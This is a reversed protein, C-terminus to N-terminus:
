PIAFNEPIIWWLPPLLSPVMRAVRYVIYASGVGASGVAIKKAAVKQANADWDWGEKEKLAEKAKRPPEEPPNEKTRRNGNIDQHFKQGDGKLHVHKNKRTADNAPERRYTWKKYGLPKM